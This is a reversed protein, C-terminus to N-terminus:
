GQVCVILLGPRAALIADAVRDTERGMRGKLFVTTPAPMEFNSPTGSPEFPDSPPLEGRM